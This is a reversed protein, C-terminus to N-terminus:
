LPFVKEIANEMSFAQDIMMTKAQVNDMVKMFTEFLWVFNKVKDNMFFNADSRLMRQM